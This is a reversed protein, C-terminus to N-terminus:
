IQYNGNNAKKAKDLIDQLTMSQLVNKIASQVESWVRRAICEAARACYNENSVCEVTMVPGEFVEFVDSIKVKDPPKSLMYGGKAGRQSKILGASKLAAMIQELYKVSIDQQRAIIRTQLPGKGYKDALELVARIAYRTRTSLKM